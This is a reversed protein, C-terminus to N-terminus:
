AIGCAPLGSPGHPPQPPGALSCGGLRTGRKPGVIVCSPLYPIHVPFWYKVDGSLQQLGPGLPTVNQVSLSTRWSVCQKGVPDKQGLNVCVCALM